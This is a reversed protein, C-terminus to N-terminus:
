IFDWCRSNEGDAFRGDVKDCLAATVDVHILVVDVSDKEPLNSFVKVAMLSAIITLLWSL